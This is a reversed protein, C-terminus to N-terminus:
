KNYHHYHTVHCTYIQQKFAGSDLECFFFFSICNLLCSLNARITCVQFHRGLKYVSLLQSGLHFFFLVKNLDWADIDVCWSFYFLPAFFFLFLKDM